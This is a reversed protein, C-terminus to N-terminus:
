LLNINLLMAALIFLGIHWRNERYSGSIVQCTFCCDYNTKRQNYFKCENEWCDMSRDGYPCDELASRLFFCTWCCISRIRTDYCMNMFGYAIDKCTLNKDPLVYEASKDGLWCDMPIEPALRNPRCYGQDCWKHSGCSTGDLPVMDTCRGETLCAMEACFMDQNKFNEDECQYIDSGKGFKLRCQQSATLRQGSPMLFYEEYSLTFNSETLLCFSNKNEDLFTELYKKSCSSFRFLNLTNMKDKAVFQNSAMIYNDSNPCNNGKGDPQIGCSLALAHVVNMATQFGFVEQIISTSNNTCMSYERGEFINKTTVMLAHDCMQAVANSPENFWANFKIWNIDRDQFLFTSNKGCTYILSTLKIGFNFKGSSLTQFMIDVVHTMVSYYEKIFYIIQENNFTQPLIKMFESCVSTHLIFALEVIYPENVLRKQRNLRSQFAHIEKAFLNNPWLWNVTDKSPPKFIRHWSGVIKEEFIKSNKKHSRDQIQLPIVGWLIGRNFFVGSVHCRYLSHLNWECIISFSGNEGIYRQPVFTNEANNDPVDIRYMETTDLSYLPIDTRKDEDPILLLVIIENLFIFKLRLQRDSVFEPQKIELNTSSIPYIKVDESQLLNNTSIIVIELLTLFCLIFPYKGKQM